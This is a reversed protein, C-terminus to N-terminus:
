GHNVEQPAAPLPMWHTVLWNFENSWEGGQYTAIALHDCYGDIRSANAWVLYHGEAEPMRESVPIWKGPVVPAPQAHRYAAYIADCIAKCEALVDPEVHTGHLGGFTEELTRRIHGIGEMASRLNELALKESEPAPESDREAKRREQLEKAMLYYADVRLFMATGKEHSDILMQLESDTAQERTLKSTM